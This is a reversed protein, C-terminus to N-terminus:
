GKIIAAHGQHDSVFADVTIHTFGLARILCNVEAFEDVLNIRGFAGLADAM